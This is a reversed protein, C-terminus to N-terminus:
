FTTIREIKVFANLIKYSTLVVVEVKKFNLNEM